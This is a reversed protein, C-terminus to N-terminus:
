VNNAIRDPLSGVLWVVFKFDESVGLAAADPCKRALIAGLTQAIGGEQARHAEVQGFAALRRFAQPYGLKEATKQEISAFLVGEIGLASGGGLFDEGLNAVVDAVSTEQSFDAKGDRLVALTLGDLVYGGTM